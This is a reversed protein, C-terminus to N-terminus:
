PREYILLKMLTPHSAQGYLFWIWETTCLIARILIFLRQYVGFFGRRIVNISIINHCILFCKAASTFSFISLSLIFLKFYIGETGFENLISSRLLLMGIITISMMLYSWPLLFSPSKFFYSSTKMMQNVVGKLMKETKIYLLIMILGILFFYFKHGLIKLFVLTILAYSFTRLQNDFLTSNAARVKHM